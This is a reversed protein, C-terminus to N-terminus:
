HIRRKLKLLLNGNDSMMTSGIGLLKAGDYVVLDEVINEISGDKIDTALVRQGNALREAILSEVVIRELGINLDDIRILQYQGTVVNDVTYISQGAFASLHTRRLETLHGVTGLKKAIDEALVRIYTGTSCSCVCSLETKGCSLLELKSITIDRAAREVSLGKRALKYLPQGNQKLASYMPPIQSQAGLMSALVREVETKDFDPIAVQEVIAGDADGTDSREGLKITFQYTKGDSLLYQAIKTAEGFCIPLMGTAMPDLTGTHGAKKAKLKHKVQQLVKNSSLGAPKDLLLVGNVARSLHNM